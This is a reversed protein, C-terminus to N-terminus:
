NVGFGAMSSAVNDVVLTAGTPVTDNNTIATRVGAIDPQATGDSRSVIGAMVHLQKQVGVLRGSVEFHYNVRWINSVAM